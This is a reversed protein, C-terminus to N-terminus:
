ESMGQTINENAPTLAWAGGVGEGRGRVGWCAGKADGPASVNGDGLVTASESTSKSIFFWCRL